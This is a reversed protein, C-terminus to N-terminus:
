NECVSCHRAPRNLNVKEMVYEIIQKLLTHLVNDTRIFKLADIPKSGAHLHCQVGPPKSPNFRFSSATSSRDDVHVEQWTDDQQNSPSQRGGRGRRRREDELM